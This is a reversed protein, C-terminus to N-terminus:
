IVKKSLLYNFSVHLKDKKDYLSWLKRENNKKELSFSYPSFKRLSKEMIGFHEKERREKLM